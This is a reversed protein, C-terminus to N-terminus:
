FRERPAEVAEITTNVALKPWYFLKGKGERSCASDRSCWAFDTSHKVSNAALTGISCLLVKSSYRSKAIRWRSM